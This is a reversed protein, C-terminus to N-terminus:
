SGPPLVAVQYEDHAYHSVIANVVFGVCYGQVYIPMYGVEGLSGSAGDVPNVRVHYLPHSLLVGGPLYEILKRLQGPYYGDNDRAYAEAANAVLHVSHIIERRLRGHSDAAPREVVDPIPEHGVDVFESSQIAVASFEPTPAVPTENACGAVLTTAVALILLARM